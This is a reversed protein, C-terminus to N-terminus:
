RIIFEWSNHTDIAKGNENYRQPFKRTWDSTWVKKTRVVEWNPRIQIESGDPHKFKDYWWPTKWNYKFWIKEILKKAEKFTKWKLSKLKQVAWIIKEV